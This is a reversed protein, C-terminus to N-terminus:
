LYLNDLTIRGFKEDYEYKFVNEDNPNFEKISGDSYQIYIKRIKAPRNQSPINLIAKGGQISVPETQHEFVPLLEVYRVKASLYGNEKPAGPLLSSRQTSIHAKVRFGKTSIDSFGRFGTGIQPNDDRWSWSGSLLLEISIDGSTINVKKRYPVNSISNLAVIDIDWSPTAFIYEDLDKHGYTMPNAASRAHVTQTQLSRVKRVEQTVYVCYASRPQNDSFYSVASFLMAMFCVTIAFALKWNLSSNKIYYKFRVSRSNVNLIKTYAIKDHENKWVIVDGIRATQTDNSTFKLNKLSIAKINRPSHVIAIEKVHEPCAYVFSDYDEHGTAWKTRFYYRGSDVDRKGLSCEQNALDFTQVGKISKMNFM